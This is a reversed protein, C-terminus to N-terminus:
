SIEIEQIVFSVGYAVLKIAPCLRTFALYGARLAACRLPFLFDVLVCGTMTCCPNPIHTDTQNGTKEDKYM